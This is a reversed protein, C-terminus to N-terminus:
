HWMCISHASSCFLALMLILYDYARTLRAKEGTYPQPPVELAKTTM